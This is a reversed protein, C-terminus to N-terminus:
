IALEFEIDVILKQLDDLREARVVSLFESNQEQWSFTKLNGEEISFSSFDARHPVTRQADGNDVLCVYM